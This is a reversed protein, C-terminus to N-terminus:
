TDWCVCEANGTKSYLGTVPVRHGSLVLGLTNAMPLVSDGYVSYISFVKRKYNFFVFGKLLRLLLRKNSNVMDFHM